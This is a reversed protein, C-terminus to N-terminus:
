GDAEPEVLRCHAIGISHPVTGPEALSIEGAGAVNAERGQM